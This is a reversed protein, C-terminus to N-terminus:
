VGCFYYFTHQPNGRWSIQALAPKQLARKFAKLQQIVMEFVLSHKKHSLAPPDTGQIFCVQLATLVKVMATSAPPPPVSPM